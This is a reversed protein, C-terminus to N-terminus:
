LYSHLGPLIFTVGLYTFLMAFFALGIFIYKIKTSKVHFVITLLLLTILSWTEKPDWSWFVGWSEEAWVAGTMIGIIIFFYSLKLENKLYIELDKKNIAMILTIIFAFTLSVYGIFFAPVHIYIWISNLAPMLPKHIKFPFPLLYASLLIFILPILLISNIRNNIKSLFLKIGYLFAFFILSEYLNTFPAHKVTFIILIILFLHLLIPLSLIYFKKINFFYLFISSAIWFFIIILLLIQEIM